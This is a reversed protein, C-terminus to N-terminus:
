AADREPLRGQRALMVSAETLMTEVYGADILVAAVFEVTLAELEVAHEHPDSWTERLECRRGCYGLQTYRSPTFAEGCLDCTPTEPEPM